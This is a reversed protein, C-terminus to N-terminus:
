QCRLRSLRRDFEAEGDAPWQRHMDANRHRQRAANKVLGGVYFHKFSSLCNVRLFDHEELSALKHAADSM